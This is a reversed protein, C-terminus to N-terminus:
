SEKLTFGEESLLKRLKKLARACRVRVAEPSLSVEAAIEKSTMNSYYKRLIIVSDPEGLEGIKNLLVQKMESREAAERVDARDPIQHLEHEDTEARRSQESMLRHFMTVARRYAVTGVLGKLDGNFGSNRDYSFFVDSFVDSVCEDIDERSACGKLRRSVIAYVYCFYEDFLARQAKEVSKHMLLRYEADTM